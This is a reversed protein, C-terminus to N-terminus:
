SMQFKFFFNYIVREESFDLQQMMIDISREVLRFSKNSLRLYITKAHELNELDMKIRWNVYLKFVNNQIQNWSLLDSYNTPYLEKPFNIFSLIHNQVNIDDNIYNEAKM